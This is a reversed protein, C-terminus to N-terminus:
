VVALFLKRWRAGYLLSYTHKPQSYLHAGFPILLLLAQRSQQLRPRQRNVRLLHETLWVTSPACRCQSWIEVDVVPVVGNATKLKMKQAFVNIYEHKYIFLFYIFSYSSYNVLACPATTPTIVAYRTNGTRTLKLPWGFSPWQQGSWGCTTLYCYLMWRGIYEYLNLRMQSTSRCHLESLYVSRISFDSQM